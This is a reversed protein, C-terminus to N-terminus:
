KERRQKLVELFAEVFADRTLRGKMEKLESQLTKPMREFEEGDLDGSNDTDLQSFIAATAKREVTARGPEASRRRFISEEVREPAPRGVNQERPADSERADRDEGTARERSPSRDGGPARERGPSQDRGPARDRLTPRDRDAGADRERSERPLVRQRLEVPARRAESRARLESETGITGTVTVVLVRGEDTEGGVLARVSQPEGPKVMLTTSVESTYTRYVPMTQGTATRGESDVSIVSAASDVWAKEVELQLMIAGNKLRPTVQILTGVSQTSYQTFSRGSVTRSSPVAVEQGFRSKAPVGDLTVLKFEDVVKNKGTATDTIALTVNLSVVQPGRDIRELLAETAKVDNEDGRVIITGTAADTTIRVSGDVVSAVTEALDGPSGNVYMIAIRDPKAKDSVAADQALAPRLSTVLMLTVAAFSVIRRM